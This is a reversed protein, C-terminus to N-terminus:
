LVRRKMFIAVEGDPYDQNSYYSIDIGEVHFGLKRYIQVATANTNQTECVITRMGDAEAQAAVCDMLQKGIGLGRHTEGVHFEWVWVSGNWEHPEALVLGVLVGDEYAGFSYNRSLLQNYRQLDEEEHEWIKQYPESLKILKLELSVHEATEEHTVVYKCDSVYGSVIRQFDDTSLQQLPHIELM